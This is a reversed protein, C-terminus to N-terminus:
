THYGDVVCFDCCWEGTRQGSSWAMRIHAVRLMLLYGGGGRGLTRYTSETVPRRSCCSGVPVTESVLADRFLWVEAKSSKLLCNRGLWRRFEAGPGSSRTGLDPMPLHSVAM